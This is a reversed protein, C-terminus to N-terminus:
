ADSAESRSGSGVGREFVALAFRAPESGPNADSHPVDGPFAVADGADLTFPQDAVEVM